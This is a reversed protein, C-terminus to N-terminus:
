LFVSPSSFFAAQLFSSTPTGHSQYKSALMSCRLPFFGQFLASCEWSCPVCRHGGGVCVPSFGYVQLVHPFFKVSASVRLLCMLICVPSFCSYVHLVHPFFKVLAPVRLSCMLICVPSFSHVHMAHPFAPGRLFCKSYVYSLPGVCATCTPFAKSSCPVELFVHSYVSSLLGICATSTSLAECPCFVQLFVHHYVCSLLWICTTCTPFAESPCFVLVCMLVCLPSFGKLHLVHPFFKVIAPCSLLCMLICVPSLGYM